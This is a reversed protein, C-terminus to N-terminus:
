KEKSEKIANMLEKNTIYGKKWKDVFLQLEYGNIKDDCNMDAGCGSRCEDATPFKNKIFFCNKNISLCEEEGCLNFLGSGCSVCEKEYGPNFVSAIVEIPSSAAYGTYFLKVFLLLTFLTLIIVIFYVIIIFVLKKRSIDRSKGRKKM